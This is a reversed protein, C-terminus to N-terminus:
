FNFIGEPLVAPFRLAFFIKEKYESASGTALGRPIDSAIWKCYKWSSLDGEVVESIMVGGKGGRVKLPPM